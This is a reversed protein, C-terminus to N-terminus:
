DSVISVSVGHLWFDRTYIDQLIGGIHLDDTCGSFAGVQHALGYDGVSRRAKTIDTALLDCLGDHYTGVEM